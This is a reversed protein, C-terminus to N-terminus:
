DKLTNEIQTDCGNQSGVPNAARTELFCAVVAKRVSQYAPDGPRLTELKPVLDVRTKNCDCPSLITTRCAAILALSSAVAVFSFSKMSCREAAMPTGCALMERGEIQFRM